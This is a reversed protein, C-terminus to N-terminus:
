GKAALYMRTWFGPKPEPTAPVVAPPPEIPAVPEPMAARLDAGTVDSVPIAPPTPKLYPTVPFHLEVRAHIVQEIPVWDVGIGSDYLELAADAGPTFRPGGMGHLAFLAPTPTRDPM